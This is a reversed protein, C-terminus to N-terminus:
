CSKIEVVSINSSAIPHQTATCRNCHGEREVNVRVGAEFIDTLSEPAGTVGGAGTNNDQSPLPQSILPPPLYHAPTPLPAPAPAPLPRCSSLM